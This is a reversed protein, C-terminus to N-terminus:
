AKRNMLGNALWTLFSVERDTTGAGAASEAFPPLFGIADRTLSALLSKCGEMDKLSVFTLKGQAEDKGTNKGLEHADGEADLIDDKIQFAMGLAKAFSVAHDCQKETAGGLICGAHAAAAIMAGTKLSHVGIAAELPDEGPRGGELDLQQGGAMGYAGAGIAIVRAARLVKDPSFQIDPDLMTEFAATLLADGALLATAEGFIVHCCPQGRRMTDNDMCPLDDHILSYTHIMEAACAFPLASEWDGGSIRCFELLLAPRIRKGGAFLSYQMAEVLRSQPLLPVAPIYQELAGDISMIYANLRDEHKM